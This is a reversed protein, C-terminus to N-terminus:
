SVPSNALFLRALLEDSQPISESTLVRDEPTLYLWADKWGNRAPVWVEFGRTQVSKKFSTGAPPTITVMKQGPKLEVRAHDITETSAVPRNRTGGWVLFRVKIDPWVKSSKSALEKRNLRWEALLDNGTPENGEVAYDGAGALWDKVQQLDYYDVVNYFKSSHHWEGGHPAHKVVFEVPIGLIKAIRSAPYRGNAEADVANNSKSFERYGAM